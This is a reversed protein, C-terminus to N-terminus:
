NVDQASHSRVIVSSSLAEPEKKQFVPLYKVQSEKNSENLPEDLIKLVLLFM